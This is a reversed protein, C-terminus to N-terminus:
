EFKLPFVTTIPNGNFPRFHTRAVVEILCAKFHSDNIDSKSIEVKSTQGQKEITFAILVQGASQPNKQILQGFCKFFDNKKSNLITEIELQSMQEKSQAEPIAEILRPSNKKDILAYDVASNLQGERRVWFSPNKGFKEISVDGTKVVVLPQGNDLTDVLVESKESVRFQGGNDFEIVAESNVDTRITDREDVSENVKVDSSVPMENNLRKVQGSKEVIHAFKKKSFGLQFKQQPLITSFLILAVGLAILGPVVWNNLKM